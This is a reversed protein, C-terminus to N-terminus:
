TRWVPEPTCDFHVDNVPGAGTLPIAVRDELSPSRRPDDYGTVGYCSVILHGTELEVSLFTKFFPPENTDALSSVRRGLRNVIKATREEGPVRRTPRAPRTPPLGSGMTEAVYEAARKPSIRGTRLRRLARPDILGFGLLLYLALLATVTGPVAALGAAAVAATADGALQALAALALGAVAVAVAAGAVSGVSDHRPQVRRRGPGLRPVAGGVLALLV